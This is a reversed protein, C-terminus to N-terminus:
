RDDDYLNSLSVTSSVSRSVSTKLFETITKYKLYHNVYTSRLYSEHSQGKLCM